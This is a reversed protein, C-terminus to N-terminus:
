KLDDYPFRPAGFEYNTGPEASAQIDHGNVEIAAQTAQQYQVRLTALQARVMAFKAAYDIDFSNVPTDNLLSYELSNLQDEILQWRTIMQLLKDM